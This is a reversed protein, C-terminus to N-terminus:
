KNRDRGSINTGPTRLKRFIQEQPDLKTTVAQSTLSVRSHSAREPEGWNLNITDIDTVCTIDSIVPLLVAYNTGLVKLNSIPTTTHM